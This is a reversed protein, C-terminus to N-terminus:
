LARGPGYLLRSSVVPLADGPVTWRPGLATTSGLRSRRHAQAYRPPREAPPAPRSPPRRGAGPRRPSEAATPLPRGDPPPYAPLDRGDVRATRVLGARHLLNLSDFTSTALGFREDMSFGAVGARGLRGARGQQDTRLNLKAHAGDAAESFGRIRCAVLSAVCTGM